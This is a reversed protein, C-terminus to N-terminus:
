KKLRMRWVGKFDDPDVPEGRRLIEIRGVRALHIAQEKVARRYRKYLDRGDSPKRRAEAYARAIDDPAASKDDPLAALQDLIMIAVPDLPTPDKPATEKKMDDTM